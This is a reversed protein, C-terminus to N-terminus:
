GKLILMPFVSTSKEKMMKEILLARSSLEIVFDVLSPVDFAKLM